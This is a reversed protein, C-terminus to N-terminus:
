NSIRLFLDENLANHHTEFPKANAGGYTTDLIPTEVEMCGLGLFRSRMYQVMNSRFKFRERVGPNVLMDLYRQRSRTEVDELKAPIDELSKALMRIKKSNVTPEGARTRFVTGSVNVIDGVSFGNSFFEFVDEDDQKRIAVQVRGSEDEVDFFFMRKHDRAATIRGVISVQEGELQETKEFVESNFHTREPIEPPYPNIGQEELFQLQVLRHQKTNSDTREITM